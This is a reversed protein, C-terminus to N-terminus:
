ALSEDAEAANIMSDAIEPSMGIEKSLFEEFTSHGDEIYLEDDRVERLHRGIRLEEQRARNTISLLDGGDAYDTILEERKM